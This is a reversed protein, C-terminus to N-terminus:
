ACTSIAILTVWSTQLSSLFWGETCHGCCRTWGAHWTFYTGARPSAICIASLPVMHHVSGTAQSSLGASWAACLNTWPAEQLKQTWPWCMPSTWFGLPQIQLLIWCSRGSIVFTMVMLDNFMGKMRGLFVLETLYGKFGGSDMLVQLCYTVFNGGKYSQLKTVNLISIIKYIITM